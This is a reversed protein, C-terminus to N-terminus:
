GAHKLPTQTYSRSGILEHTSYRYGCGSCERRRYVLALRVVVKRVRTGACQKCSPCPVSRM